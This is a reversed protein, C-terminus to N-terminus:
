TKSKKFRISSRTVLHTHVVVKWIDHLYAIFGIFLLLLTKIPSETEVNVYVNANSFVIHAATDHWCNMKLSIIRQITGMQEHLKMSIIILEIGHKSNEVLVDKVNRLSVHLMLYLYLMFRIVITSNGSICKKINITMKMQNRNTGLQDLADSQLLNRILMKSSFELSNSPRVLYCSLTSRQFLRTSVPSIKTLSNKANM